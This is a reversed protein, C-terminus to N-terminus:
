KANTESDSDRIAGTRLADAVARFATARSCTTERQIARALDAASLADTRPQAHYLNRLIEAVRQASPRIM